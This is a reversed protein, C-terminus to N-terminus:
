LSPFSPPDAGFRIRYFYKFKERNWQNCSGSTPSKVVRTSDMTNFEFCILVCNSKHYGNTNDIRELSCRWDTKSQISLPIGSYYCRYKQAEAIDFLDDLCLNCHMQMVRSHYRASYLLKKFYGRPTDRWASVIINMCRKCKTKNSTYFMDASQWTDCNYCFLDGNKSCKAVDRSSKKVKRRAISIDNASISANESQILEPIRCIKAMDWQVTANFEQAILVVNDESYGVNPDTRELSCQWDCLRKLQMSIGSYFCLGKQQHYLSQLHQYNIIIPTNSHGQIRERRKQNTRADNVMKKFYTEEDQYLYEHFCLKCWYMYGRGKRSKWFQDNPLHKECRACRLLNTGYYRKLTGGTLSKTFSLNM